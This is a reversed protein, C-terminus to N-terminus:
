LQKLKEAFFNLFARLKLTMSHHSPYIAQFSYNPSRWDNLIRRLKGSCIDDDTLMYQPIRAIGGGDIALQRIATLDNVIAHLNTVVTEQNGDDDLMEWRESHIADGMVLFRHNKLESFNQPTGMVRLYDSSAVLVSHSEGLKKCVLTSDELKGLRIAVDYGEGILDVRRNELKLDLRINPYQAMFEGLFPILLNQGISVSVSVKLMGRPSETMSSIFAHANGLEAIVRKCHLFYMSGIETLSIARTTREILRVGLSEELAKMRRSVRSKPMNLARAASSIGNLEAVKAFIVIDNLDEIM